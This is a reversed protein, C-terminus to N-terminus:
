LWKEWAHAKELKYEFIAFISEAKRERLFVVGEIGPGIACFRENRGAIGNVSPMM